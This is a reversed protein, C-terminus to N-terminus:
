SKKLIRLFGSNTYHDNNCKYKTCKKTLVKGVNQTKGTNKMIETMETNAEEEVSKVKAAKLVLAKAQFPTLFDM